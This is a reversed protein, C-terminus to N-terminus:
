APTARGHSLVSACDNRAQEIREQLDASGWFAAVGAGVRLGSTTGLSRLIERKLLEGLQRARVASWHELFLVVETRGLALMLVPGLLNGTLHALARQLAHAHAESLGHIHLYLLSHESGNRAKGVRDALLQRSVAAGGGRGPGRWDIMPKM